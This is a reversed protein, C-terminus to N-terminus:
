LALLLNEASLRSLGQWSVGAPSVRSPLRPGRDAERGGGRTNASSSTWSRITMPRTSGSKLLRVDSRNPIRDGFGFGGEYVSNFNSERSLSANMPSSPEWVTRGRGRSFFRRSRSVDAARRARPDFFGWAAPEPSYEEVPKSVARLVSVSSPYTARASCRSPADLESRASTGLAERRSNTAPPKPEKTENRSITTFFPGSSRACSSPTSQHAEIIRSTPLNAKRM